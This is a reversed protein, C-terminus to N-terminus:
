RGCASRTSATPAPRSIPTRVNSRQPCSSTRAEPRRAPVSVPSSCTSGPTSSLPYGDTSAADRVSALWAAHRGPDRLGGAAAHDTDEVNCGAAGTARLAAVLDAPELDYGAEADVTVPVDVARAIRTAAALMEGAPAGQHDEYGLTAALGRGMREPPAVPRRPPAVLSAACLPQESGHESLNGDGRHPHWRRLSQREPPHSQPGTVPHECRSSCTRRRGPPCMM